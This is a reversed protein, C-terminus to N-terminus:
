PKAKSAARLQELRSTVQPDDPNLKHAQELVPLAAADDGLAHLTSALLTLTGFFQPNLSAAKRLPALAEQYRKLRFLSLGLNNWGDFSEPDLKVAQRLPEIADSFSGNASYLEGLLILRRSDKPDAIRQCVIRAQAIPQTRLAEKCERGDQEAIRQSEQWDRYLKYERDADNTRGALSYVRGLRYHVEPDRPNKRAARELCEQARAQQGASTYAVGLYFSVDSLAPDSELPALKKIASTFDNARLDLRGLYYTLGPRDGLRQGEIEFQKRAEVNRQQAFLCTAYRIRVEDNNPDIALAQEFEAAAESYLRDQMLRVAKGVHSSADKRAPPQATAGLTELLMVVCAAPVSRM